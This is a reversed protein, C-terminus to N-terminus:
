RFKKYLIRLLVIFGIGVVILIIRNKVSDFNTEFIDWHPGLLRGTLIYVGSWTMASFLAIPLFIKPKIQLLGTAVSTYGRVFPTLRLLYIKWQGGKSVQNSLKDITKESVPIWKKKLILGGFFYFTFYLINTGTFDATLATLFILHFALVGKFVLYGSFMLMFENPIPNPAGIEQLFVLSFIAWYGYESIYKIIEPPM